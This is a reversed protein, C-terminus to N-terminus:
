YPCVKYDEYTYHEPGVVIDQYIGDYSCNVKSINAALPLASVICSAGSREICVEVLLSRLMKKCLCSLSYFRAERHLAHQGANNHPLLLHFDTTPKHRWHKLYQLILPFLEPDRDVFVYGKRDQYQQFMDSAM